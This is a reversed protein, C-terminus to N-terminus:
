NGPYDQVNLGLTINRTAKFIGDKLEPKLVGNGGVPNKKIREKDTLFPDSDFIFDDM